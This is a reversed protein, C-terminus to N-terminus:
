VDCNTSFGRSNKITNTETTSLNKYNERHQCVETDYILQGDKKKRFLFCFNLFENRNFCCCVFFSVPFFIFIAVILFPSLSKTEHNGDNGIGAKQSKSTCRQFLALKAKPEVCIEYVLLKKVTVRLSRFAKIRAFICFCFYGYKFLSNRKSHQGPISVSFCGISVLIQLSLSIM